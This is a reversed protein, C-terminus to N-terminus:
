KKGRGFSVQTKRENSIPMAPHEDRMLDNDVAHMQQDTQQAFYANREQVTEEPIKALMLGGVGVTGTHTGEDIVPLDFGSIESPHVPEYGERLRMHVNTKDAEGRIHTRLWRYQMGPPADPTELAQPPKWPKRAAKAERSGSSRPTRNSGKIEDSM